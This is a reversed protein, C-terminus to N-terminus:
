NAGQQHNEGRSSENGRPNVELLLAFESQRIVADGPDILIVSPGILHDRGLDCGARGGLM